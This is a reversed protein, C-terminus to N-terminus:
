TYSRPLTTVKARGKNFFTVDVDSVYLKRPITTLKLMNKVAEFFSGESSGLLKAGFLAYRGIM